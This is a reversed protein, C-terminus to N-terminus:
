SRYFFSFPVPKSVIDSVRKSLAPACDDWHKRSLVSCDSEKVDLVLYYVAASEQPIGFSCCTFPM